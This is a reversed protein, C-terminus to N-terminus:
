GRDMRAESNEVAVVLLNKDASDVVYVATVAGGADGGTRGVCKKGVVVTGCVWAQVVM